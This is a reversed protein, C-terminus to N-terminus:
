SVIPISLLHHRGSIRATLLVNLLVVRIQMSRMMVSETIHSIHEIHTEASLANM